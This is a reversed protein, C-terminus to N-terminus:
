DKKTPYGTWKDLFPAMKAEFDIMIKVAQEREGNTMYEGANVVAQALAATEPGCILLKRWVPDCVVDAM